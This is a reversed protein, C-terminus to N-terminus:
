QRKMKQWRDQASPADNRRLIRLLGTLKHGIRWSRSEFVADLLLDREALQRQAEVLHEREVFSERTEEPLPEPEPLPAPPPEVVPEAAEQEAAEREAAQRHLEELQLGLQNLHKRLGDIEAEMEDVLRFESLLELTRASTPAVSRDLVAGSRLDALLARQDSDLMSEDTPARRGSRNFDVNVIQGMREETPVNLGDIGLQTLSAHLERAVRSPDALLAEYSVLLRPLGETDRLLTRNHHEWAAVSRLLPERDRTVLSRAVALPDRWAIVFVPNQLVDRWFPILTSMRPDKLVFSGGGQLSQVISKARTVYHVRQEESLRSVDASVVDKWSAGLVALIEADLQVLERHEWYGTPNFIDPAPLQDAGGASAGLANVIQAVVSTGSRHMGLVVVPRSERADNRARTQEQVHCRYWM